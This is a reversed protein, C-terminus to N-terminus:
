KFLAVATRLQADISLRTANDTLRQARELTTDDLEVPVDPDLGKGDPADGKATKFLGVTYKIAWGNDLVDIRQAM